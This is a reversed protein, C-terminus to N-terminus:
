LFSKLMTLMSPQSKLKAAMKELTTIWDSDCEAFVGLAESVRQSESETLEQNEETINENPLITNNLPEFYQPENPKPIGAVAHQSMGLLQPLYPAVIGAIRNFPDDASKLTEAHEKKLEALEKELAALKTEAVYEAIGRKVQAAVDEVTLGSIVTPQMASFDNQGSKSELEFDTRESGKGVIKPATMATLTFAGRDILNITKSLEDMGDGKSLGDIERMRAIPQGGETKGKAYLAWYPFEEKSAFWALINRKGVIM